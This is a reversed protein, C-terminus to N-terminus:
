LCKEAPDRNKREEEYELMMKIYAERQRKFLEKMEETLEPVPGFVTEKIM